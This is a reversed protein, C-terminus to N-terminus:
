NYRGYGYLLYIKFGNRSHKLHVSKAHHGGGGEHGSASTVQLGYRVGVSQGNRRWFWRLVSSDCKYDDCRVNCIETLFLYSWLFYFTYKCTCFKPIKGSLPVSSKSPKM